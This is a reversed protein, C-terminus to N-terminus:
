AAPAGVIEFLEEFTKGTAHMLAAIFKPSPEVDGKEVRYTTTSAVRMRRSLEDRSINLEKCHEYIVGPKLKIQMAQLAADTM